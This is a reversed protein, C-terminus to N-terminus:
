LGDRSEQFKIIQNNYKVIISREKSSDMSIHVGPVSAVDKILLINAMSDPNFHVEM